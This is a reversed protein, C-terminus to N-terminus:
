CGCKNSVRKRRRILSYVAHAVLMSLLPAIVMGGVM